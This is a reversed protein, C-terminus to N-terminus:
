KSTQRIAEAIDRCATSYGMAGAGNDWPADGRSNNDSADEAIKACREREAAVAARIEAAVARM